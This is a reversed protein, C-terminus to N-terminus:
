IIWGLLKSAVAGAATGLAFWVYWPGGHDNDAVQERQREVIREVAVALRDRSAAEIRAAREVPDLEWAMTSGQYTRIPFPKGRADFLRRVERQADLMDSNLADQARM